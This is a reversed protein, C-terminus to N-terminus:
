FQKPGHVVPRTELNKKKFFQLMKTVPNTVPKPNLNLKNKLLALFSFNRPKLNQPEPNGVIIKSNAPHSQPPRFQDVTETHLDNIASHSHNIRPKSTGVIITSNAPVLQQTPTQHVTQADSHSQHTQPLSLLWLSNKKRSATFIPPATLKINVNDNSVLIMKNSNFIATNGADCQQGVSLLPLHLNPVRHCETASPPLPLALNGKSTARMTDNSAATITIGNPTPLEDSLPTNMDCLNITCGTDVAIVSPSSSKTTSM